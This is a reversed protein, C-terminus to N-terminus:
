LVGGQYREYAKMGWLWMYGAVSIVALFAVIYRGWYVAEEPMPWGAAVLVVLLVYLIQCLTSLKGLRSPRIEYRGFLLHYSWAGLLIILDRGLVLLALWYDILGIYTLVVFSTVLLLKDALPDAISGFRSKWEFKRALFGDVGDSVGAILFLWLAQRFDELCISVAIPIVLLIRGITLFNPINRQSLISSM